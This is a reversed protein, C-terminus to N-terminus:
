SLWDFIQELNEESYEIEGSYMRAFEVLIDITIEGNKKFYLACLTRLIRVSLVAFAVKSIVDGDDLASPVHRYIFYVGLQEFACSWEENLFNSYDPEEADKLEILCETWKEDLRELQLLKEAWDSINIESVDGCLEWLEDLREDTTCSRDQMIQFLMDRYSLLTYEEDEQQENDDDEEMIVLRVPEKRKLILEGAAECCLGLGMEERDSFYNRFRPHDSCIQCLSDEGLECIMECLGDQRLFPCSEDEELIYHPIGDEVAICNKLKEGIKGDITKYWEYSEEDIDIEWGKCCSHRCKDAICSFENYYDPVIYKM